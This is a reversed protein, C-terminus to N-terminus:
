TIKRLTNEPGFQFAVDRMAHLQDALAAIGWSAHAADGGDIGSAGAHASAIAMSLGGIHMPITSLVNEAHRYIAERMGESIHGRDDLDMLMHAMDTIPTTASKFWTSATEIDMKSSEKMGTLSEISISSDPAKLHPCFSHQDGDRTKETNFDSM